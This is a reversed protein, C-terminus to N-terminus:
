KTLEELGKIVKRAVAPIISQEKAHNETFVVLIFKLGDPTEIYAADHRTKSTWGEKSWLKTGPELAWSIFERYFPDKVPKEWDRKMLDMMQKSREPTVAKGRVIQALLRATANTTLKNRNKNGYGRFQQERGWADECHTKQNISINKYGLSHFYRNMWNRKYAWQEFEKPPMEPGSSTGTLVDVIYGTSENGSDIIMNKLGRELEPTMKVKGDELQQHLAVMYFMKVVSAPYIQAEGRFSVTPGIGSVRLDIMTAALESPKLNSTKFETITESVAKDLIRRLPQRRYIELVAPKTKRAKTLPDRTPKETQAFAVTSLLLLMLGIPMNLQLKRMLGPDTEKRISHLLTYVIILRYIFAKLTVVM